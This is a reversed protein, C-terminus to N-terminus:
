SKSILNDQLTFGVKQSFSKQVWIPVSLNNSQYTFQLYVCPPVKKHKSNRVVIGLFLWFFTQLKFFNMRLYLTTKFLLGNKKPIIHKKSGFLSTEIKQRVILNYFVCIPVKEQKKKKEEFIHRLAALFVSQLLIICLSLTTKIFYYSEVGIWCIWGPSFRYACFTIIKLRPFM